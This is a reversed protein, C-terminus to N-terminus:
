SGQRLGSKDAGRSLVAREITAHAERREDSGRDRGLNVLTHRPETEMLYPVYEARGVQWEAAAGGADPDEPPRFAFRAASGMTGRPDDMKGAIQDGMGYVVWTGNVKEYAQPVHAHTGIILDIDRRGHHRSATLRKALARQQADPEQQWETGWHMSAVVVDAGAKRAARADAVIRRPDIRNVTWPKGEPLPIGNTGYTYALQAVKASGARLVAPRRSEAESRASGVHGLKVADMAKLTRAVGESGADLSHNSATSCSDYGADKVAKALQPPTTFSPYGAFPGEDPGYVTEMHCLALDAGSALPKAASLMRGFDYASAGKEGSSGADAKAQRILSDHVLLDGSAVLTFGRAPQPQRSAAGAPDEPDRSARHGACGAVGVVAALAGVAALRRRAAARKAHPAQASPDRQM